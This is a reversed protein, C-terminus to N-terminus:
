REELCYDRIDFDGIWMLLKLATNMSIRHRSPRNGPRRPRAVFYETLQARPIGAVAEVEAWTLGLEAKRALVNRALLEVDFEFRPVTTM